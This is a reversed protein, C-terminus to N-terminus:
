GTTAKEHTERWADGFRHHPRRHVVLHGARIDLVLAPVANRDDERLFVAFCALTKDAHFRAKGSMCSLSLFFSISKGRRSSKCFYLRCSPKPNDYEFFHTPQM